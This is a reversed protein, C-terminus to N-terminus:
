FSHWRAGSREVGGAGFFLRRHDERPFFDGRLFDLRDFVKASTCNQMRWTDIEPFHSTDRELFPRRFEYNYKSLMGRFQTVKNPNLDFGSAALPWCKRRPMKPIASYLRTRITDSTNEKLFTSWREFNIKLSYKMNHDHLGEGLPIFFRAGDEDAFFTGVSEERLINFLVGKQDLISSIQLGQYFIRDRGWWKDVDDAKSNSAKTKQVTKLNTKEKGKDGDGVASSRKPASCQTKRKDIVKITNKNAATSSTSSQSFIIKKKARIPKNATMATEEEEDAAASLVTWPWSATRKEQDSVAVSRKKLIGELKKPQKAAPADKTSGSKLRKLPTVCSQRKRTSDGVASKPQELLKLIRSEMNDYANSLNLFRSEMQEYQDNQEQANKPVSPSPKEPSGDKLLSSVPKLPRGDPGAVVAAEGESEAVDYDAEDCSMASYFLGISRLVLNCM